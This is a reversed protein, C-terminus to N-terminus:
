RLDRLCPRFEGRNDIINQMIGALRADPDVFNNGFAIADKINELQEVEDNWDYTMDDREFASEIMDLQHCGFIAVLDNRFGSPQCISKTYVDPTFGLTIGKNNIALGMFLGGLACVECRSSSMLISCFPTNHDVVGTPVAMDVYVGPMASLKKAALQSLVDQAVRVAKGRPTLTEFKRTSM